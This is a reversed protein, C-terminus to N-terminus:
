AAMAERVVTRLRAIGEESKEAFSDRMYRFPRNGPHNVKRAFVVRGDVEFRLFKARVPLIEHPRSGFELAKAYDLGAGGGAGGMLVDGADERYPNISERLAGSRQKLPDGSLKSQQIYNALEEAWTDLTSKLGSLIVPQLARIRDAVPQAGVVEINVTIVGAVQAM